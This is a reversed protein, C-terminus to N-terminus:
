QLCWNESLIYFWLGLIQFFPPVLRLMSALNWNPFNCEAEELPGSQNLQILNEESGAQATVSHAQAKSFPVPKNKLCTSTLVPVYMCVCGFKHVTFQFRWICAHSQGDWRQWLAMDWKGFHFHVRSQWQM